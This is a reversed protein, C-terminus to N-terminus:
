GPQLNLLKGCARCPLTTSSESNGLSFRFM